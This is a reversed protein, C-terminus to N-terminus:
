CGRIGARATNSMEYERVACLGALAVVVKIAKGEHTKESRKSPVRPGWQAAALDEASPPM